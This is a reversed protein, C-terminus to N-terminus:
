LTVRARTTAIREKWEPVRMAMEKHAKDELDRCQNQAKSWLRLFEKKSQTFLNETNKAKTDESYTIQIKKAAYYTLGTLGAALAFKGGFPYASNLAFRRATKVNLPRELRALDRLGECRSALDQETTAIASINLDYVLSTINGVAAAQVAKNQQPNIYNVIAKVFNTMGSFPDGATGTLPLKSFPSNFSWKTLNISGPTDSLAM